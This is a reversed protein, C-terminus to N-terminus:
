VVSKRDLIRGRALLRGGDDDVETRRRRAGNGFERFALLLRRADEVGGVGGAEGRGDLLSGEGGVGRRLLSELLLLLRAAGVVLERGVKLTLLGVKRGERGLRVVVRPVGTGGEVGVRLVVGRVGEGVHGGGARGRRGEEGAM